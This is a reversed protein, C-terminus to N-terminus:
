VGPPDMNAKVDPPKRHEALWRGVVDVYADPVELPVLHGVTEFVHLNWDPRRAILDDIVAREILPDQDGWLLLTPVAVRDIAQEVPRRPVYMASVASAFAPVAGGLRGPRSRMQKFEEAWLAAMEPSLRSLDGGAVDLRGAALVAPDAYRLKLDILRRGFVGLLGRAIPPGAFLALRGLTQWGLAQRATLPGPLTADVLVLRDVRKPAVDAFLLAALGGTSWGHVVVHDLGLADTFARLFRANNQARAANPHPLGTHGAVTGPLDPAVVPGHATLPGLVDLWWVASAGMPHVLLQTSGDPPAGPAADARVLHVAVGRVDVVESRIGAWRPSREGWDAYPM